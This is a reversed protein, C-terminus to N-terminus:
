VNQHCRDTEQCRPIKEDGRWSCSFLCLETGDTFLYLYNNRKNDIYKLGLDWANCIGTEISRELMDDCQRELNKWDFDKAKFRIPQATEQHFLVVTVNANGDLQSIDENLFSKAKDWIGNRDRM